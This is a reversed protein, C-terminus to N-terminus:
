LNNKICMHVYLSVNSRRCYLLKYVGAHKTITVYTITNKQRPNQIEISEYNENNTMQNLQILVM